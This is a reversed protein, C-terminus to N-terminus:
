KQAEKDLKLYHRIVFGLKDLFKVKHLQRIIDSYKQSEKDPLLNELISDHEESIWDVFINDTVGDEANKYMELRNSIYDCNKHSKWDYIQGDFVHTSKVYIEAVKIKEGCFNCSHEKKAKTETPNTITDIM